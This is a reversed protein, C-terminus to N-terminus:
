ASVTLSAAPDLQRTPTATLARAWLLKPKRGATAHPEFNIISILVTRPLAPTAIATPLPADLRRVVM